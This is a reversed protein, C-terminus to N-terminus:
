GAGQVGERRGRGEGEGEVGGMERGEGGAGGKVGRGVGGRVEVCWVAVVRRERLRARM